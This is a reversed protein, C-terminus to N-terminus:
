STAGGKRYIIFIFGALLLALLGFLANLEMPSATSLTPVQTWSALALDEQAGAKAGPASKSAAGQLKAKKLLDERVRIPTKDVAVFSTYPSMIQHALAVDLVGERVIDADMGRVKADLLGEVKQHAWLKGIGSTQAASQRSIELETFKDDALQAKLTVPADSGAPLKSVFIVPRQGFLDPVLRPYTDAGVGANLDVNRLAPKAMDTFLKELKAGALQINDIQIHIGRGFEAAKRMFWSNPAYGLGVTFLRADGLKDTVLKFLEEENTVAGDTLFVIQRDLAPDWQHGLAADLAPYMETGRDARLAAIQEAAHERAASTAPVPRDFLRAVQDNFVIIQFQDEPGLLDLARTLAQKGQDIGAGQMSGSIDLIFTVDRPRDPVSADAAPPLLIGLLYRDNGQAEEFLLTKALDGQEFSWNLVFDKDAPLKGGVLTVRTDGNELAETEILHTASKLNAIQAGQSIRISFETENRADGNVDAPIDAGGRDSVLEARVPDPDYRPTIVQPMIYAFNAGDQAALTQFSIEVSVDSGPAVNAVRTSFTNPRYQELLAASKGAAAAKAYTKKAQQKEQIESQIVREGVTLRMHDVAANDPLPFYYVGEVWSNTPNKFNQVVTTRVIHGTIVSSVRTSLAMAPIPKAVPQDMGPQARGPQERGPQESGPQPRFLLEAASRDSTAMAPAPSPAAPAAGVMLAVVGMVNLCLLTRMFLRWGGLFSDKAGIRQAFRIGEHKERHSTGM